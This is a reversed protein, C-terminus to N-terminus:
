IDELKRCILKHFVSIGRGIVANYKRGARVLCLPKNDVYLIRAAM